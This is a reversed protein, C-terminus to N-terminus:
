LIEEHSVRKILSKNWLYLICHMKKKSFAKYYRNYSPSLYIKWEPYKKFITQILHNQVGAKRIGIEDNHLCTKFKTRNPNISIERSELRM